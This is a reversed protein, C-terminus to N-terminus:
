SRATHSAGVAEHISDSMFGIMEDTLGPFVGVWFVNNMIFDSNELLGIARHEVNKYAPQRVLNGGFLLRTGIKRDELHRVVRSRSLGSEPRVAIPFGFWSPESRPTARPLILVEELDSLAAHLTAFNRRRAAIFGPLKELQSVGIAAQMDTLKLNYGVHSYIYKHDYGRPLDGMQWDFRKGCTNDDGPDCWCDRGWDRFSEVLRKLPPRNTLVAGGEGMTM